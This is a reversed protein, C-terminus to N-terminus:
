VDFSFLMPKGNEGINYMFTQGSRIKTIKSLYIPLQKAQSSWILLLNRLIIYM